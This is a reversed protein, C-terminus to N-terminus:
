DAADKGGGGALAAEAEERTLFTRYYDLYATGNVLNDATCIVGDWSDYKALIGGDECVVFNDVTLELIERSDLLPDTDIKYVTDGVKCPLVVLRGDKEARALELIREAEVGFVATIKSKAMLQAAVVADNVEEPELGTDEYAALRDAAPGCYNECQDEFCQDGDIVYYGDGDKHTMREM